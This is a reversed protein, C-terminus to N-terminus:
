TTVNKLEQEESEDIQILPDVNIERNIRPFLRQLVPVITPSDVFITMAKNLIQTSIYRRLNNRPNSYASDGGINFIQENNPDPMHFSVNTAFGDMVSFYAVYLTTLSKGLDVHIVDKHIDKISSRVSKRIDPLVNENLDLMSQWSGNLQKKEDFHDYYDDVFDVVQMPECENDVNLIRADNMFELRLKGIQYVYPDNIENPKVIIYRM